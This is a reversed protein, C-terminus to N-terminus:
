LSPRTETHESRQDPGHVGGLRDRLHGGKRNSV